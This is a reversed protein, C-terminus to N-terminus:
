WVTGIMPASCHGYRSRAFIPARSKQRILLAGCKFSGVYNIMVPLISIASLSRWLFAIVSGPRWCCRGPIKRANSYVVPQRSISTVIGAMAAMFVRQTTRLKEDLFRLSTVYHNAGLVDPVCRNENFWMLDAENAGACRTLWEWLPHQSDLKGCLLDWVLWRLENNFEAQYALLPTSFSKGLDETQILKARPNISRIARMALVIARCQGLLTAIFTQPDRGHPYWLGYWGSFRATTLPENVPTYHEIWPYRNVVAGAYEALKAAFEPDALNTYAPGSGHHLLGVIPTIALQRLRDLRADSWHWRAHAVGQPATREWLVPYRLARIGTIRLM